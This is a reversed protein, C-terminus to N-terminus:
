GCPLVFEPGAEGALCSGGVVSLRDAVHDPVHVDGSVIIRVFDGERRIVYSMGSGDPAAAVLDTVMVYVAAETAPPLRDSLEVTLSPPSHLSGAYSALAPELGANTLITPHIGHALLRLQDLIRGTIGRIEAFLATSVDDGNEVASREGRRVEFSLALLLQQAGDHLDRELQRRAADGADVVRRRSARLQDLRRVLELELSENQIALRAEPGIHAEVLDSPFAPDHLVIAIPRGRSTLETRPRGSATLDLPQGDAEVYGREDTWYGVSLGPDGVAKRLLAEATARDNDEALLRAIRALNRGISLREAAVLLAAGSILLCAGARVAVVRVHDEMTAGVQAQLIDVLATVSLAGMALAALVRPPLDRLGGARGSRAFLIGLALTGCVVVTTVAAVAGLWAALGLNAVVLVPSHGCFLGCHFDLIPQYVLARAVGTVAIVLSAVVLFPTLPYPIRWLAPLGVVILVLLPVLLPGLIMGAGVLADAGNVQEVSWIVGTWALGALAAAVAALPRSAFWLAGGAALLTLAVLRGGAVLWAPDIGIPRVTLALVVTGVGLIVIAPLQRAVISQV